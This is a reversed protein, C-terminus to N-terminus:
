YQNYKNLYRNPYHYISFSENTLIAILPLGIVIFLIVFIVIILGAFWIISKTDM